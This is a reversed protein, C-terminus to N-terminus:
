QKVRVGIDTNSYRIQYFETPEAYIVDDILKIQKTTSDEYKQATQSTSYKGGVRGFVKVDSINVVGEINQVISKIESILVNQGFERTQPLMYDNVKTIVDSIISNQNTNKAITIYIEFALDIVKGTTVSVYDNMMRYNSLYTAVNDKLVTPVNQTMKGNTDQTLLVVNIKNNNELIGIKAPIGFQGPMKQILSYYDGITVARNQSSFNFTVLNRVEEVSPPNAGGIAATVNTCQISNRVANAIEISAGNVDFLVNGVTNIVNVGVNSELGGGVRYQIFLTTNPTPIYGLSLNNQYDNIRLAVGTQAFSALQDDASTNGGGFTLKMFNEPTFETIFRNSTRIYKGVKINSQDTTKGPDPIFVTDEALAPVEYWKGVPSLFEQYTPINNYTIGDKQIISSVNIVNREPLYLSLFPTADATTIVKKFVKTIGNVLVERKIINYSQINNSADLIPIVKQNPNGSSDFQSAFNVDNVNEFTQGAGVFQSGSKLVGMYDPNPRDGLVPVNISIDCVAISPRNGPIKLGYTRAINYISSRQKAFELVTEQISRDIHYHLNDTVAANLDMLVSFISADNFNDILEPYYQRTYDILEQRIAAFDRVTYSIRKEAM